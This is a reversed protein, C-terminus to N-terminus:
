EEELFARHYKWQRITDEYKWAVCDAFLSKDEVYVVTEWINESENKKAEELAAFSVALEPYFFEVSLTVCYRNDHTAVRSNSAQKVSIAALPIGEEVNLGDLQQHFNWSAALMNTENNQLVKFKSKDKLHCKYHKIHPVLKDVSQFRVLPSHPEAAETVPVSLRYSRLQDLTQCPSESEQPNYNQLYIRNLDPPRPIQAPTLPDLTVGKLNALEKHIDWQNLANQFSSAAEDTLFYAKVMLDDHEYFIQIGEQESYRGNHRELFKFVNGRAGNSQRAGLVVAGVVFASLQQQQSTPQLPPGLTYTGGDKLGDFHDLPFNDEDFFYEVNYRALKAKFDEQHLVKEKSNTGTDKIVDIIKAM